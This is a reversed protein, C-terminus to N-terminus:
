GGDTSKKNKKTEFIGNLDLLERHIKMVDKPGLDNFLEDNSDIVCCKLMYDIPESSKADEKTTLDIYNLWEQYSFQKLQIMKEGVKFETTDKEM